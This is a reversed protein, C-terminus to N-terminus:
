CRNISEIGLHELQIRALQQERQMAVTTGNRAEEDIVILM